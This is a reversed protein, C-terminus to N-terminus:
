CVLKMKSFRLNSQFIGYHRIESFWNMLIFYFFCVFRFLDTFSSFFLLRFSYSLHFSNFLLFVFFFRWFIPNQIENTKKKRNQASCHDEIPNDKWFDVPAYATMWINFAIWILSRSIFVSRFLFLFFISFISRVYSSFLGHIFSISCFLLFDTVVVACLIIYYFHLKFNQKQFRISKTTHVRSDRNRVALRCGFM